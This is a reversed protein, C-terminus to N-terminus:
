QRLKQGANKALALRHPGRQLILEIHERLLDDGCYVPCGHHSYGQLFPIAEHDEAYLPNPCMLGLLFKGITM